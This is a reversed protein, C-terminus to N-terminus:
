IVDISLLNFLEPQKIITIDLLNAKVLKSGGNAGAALFDVNKSISSSVKAGLNELKEKLQDRTFIDFSGTLVFTKGQLPKIADDVIVDDWIIACDVVLNAIEKQNHPNNFFKVIHSATITGVDEVILLDIVNANMLNDLSNFHIALQKATNEGVDKIGLSYIFTELTTRKSNEIGTVINACRTEGMRPLMLLSQISLHYLDSPVKVLGISYLQEILQKGVGQINMGTRSVFHKLKGIAQAPCTYEGTCRRITQGKPTHTEAHCVPCRVPMQYVITDNQRLSSFVNVIQPIVDGARRVTVTDGICIGLRDIEDQNHLTANSVTVGGVFVPKLKAVPTLSGTRGVQVDIGEVITTAEEAPFKYAIAWKPAKATNGLQQQVDLNNVKFVCGDIEFPLDYRKQQITNYYEIVDDVTTLPFETLKSVPLGWGAIMLLNKYHTTQPLFDWEIMGISYCYVQLGREATIKPDLQRLSGAAANRPNVYPDKGRELQKVNIVDFSNKPLYVEGRIEVYKPIHDGFLRLPISKITKVNHTVDEGVTGDGRTVAHVLVGERYCLNIALGDFKPEGVFSLPMDNHMIQANSFVDDIFKRLSIEDMANSLSLMTTKHTHKNFSTIPFGGVRQTPSLESYLGPYTKEFYILTAYLSDYEEDSIKPSDYVYYSRNHAEITARLTNAYTQIEKPVTNTM